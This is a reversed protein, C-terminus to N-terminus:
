ALLPRYAPGHTPLLGAVMGLSEVARRVEKVAKPIDQVPIIAAGKLRPSVRLFEEYLFNNYARCVAVALDREQVFGINLGLTPFLVVSSVGGRDLTELWHSATIRNLGLRNELTTDWTNLPILPARPRRNFPEELYQRLSQESDFIHGDADIVHFDTEAM